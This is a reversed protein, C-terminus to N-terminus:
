IVSGPASKWGSSMKTGVGNLRLRQRDDTLLGNYDSTRKKNFLTVITLVGVVSGTIEDQYSRTGTHGKHQPSRM